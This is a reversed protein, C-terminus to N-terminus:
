LHDKKRRLLQAVAAEHTPADLDGIINFGRATLNHRRLDNGFSGALLAVVLWSLAALLNLELWLDSNDQEAVSAAMNLPVIFLFYLGAVLWLRKALAWFGGFLFGPWSWGRKVTEIRGDPHAFVNYHKM